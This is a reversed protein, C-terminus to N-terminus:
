VLILAIAPMLYIVTNVCINWPNCKNCFHTIDEDFKGLCFFDLGLNFGICITLVIAITYFNWRYMLYGDRM